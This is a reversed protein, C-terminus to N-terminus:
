SRKNIRYDRDSKLSRKSSDVFEMCAQVGMVRNVASEHKQLDALLEESGSVDGCYNRFAPMSQKVMHGAEDLRGESNLLVSDLRLHNQWMQAVLLGIDQDPTEAAVESEVGVVWGVSMTEGQCRTGTDRDRWDPKVEVWHTDGVMGSPVSLQLVVVRSAGSVLRGLSIRLDSRTRSVPYRGFVEVGMGSPTRVTLIMDEAATELIEGLEGLVVTIIDEGAPADHSRGGGHEAIADLQVPSYQDGIGVTSTYLGRNRLESAHHGLEGPDVIGRNAYGDSLVIVRNQTPGSNGTALTQRDMAAAVCRCGDLWGAALDTCGRTVLSDIARLTDRRGREDAVVADAHVIVEAAFSVLTLRDGENLRAVVGRAAEKAAELPPGSMSGSADIVLGLNLPPRQHSSEENRPAKVEVLIHRQGGGAGVLRRDTRANWTLKNMSSMM